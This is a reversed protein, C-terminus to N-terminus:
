MRRNYILIQCYKDKKNLELDQIKLWMVMLVENWDITTSDSMITMVANKVLQHKNQNTLVGAKQYQIMNIQNNSVSGDNNMTAVGFSLHFDDQPTVDETQPVAMFYLLKPRFGVTVTQTGVSTSWTDFGVKSQLM